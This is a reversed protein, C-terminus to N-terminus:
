VPVERSPAPVETRFGAALQVAGAVSVAIGAAFMGFSDEFPMGDAGPFCAPDAFCANFAALGEGGLAAFLLGVELAIAGDRVWGVKMSPAGAADALEAGTSATPM